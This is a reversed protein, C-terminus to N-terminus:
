NKKFDEEPLLKVEKLLSIDIPLTTIMAGLTTFCESSRIEKQKQQKM